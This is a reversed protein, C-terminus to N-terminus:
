IRIGGLWNAATTWRRRCAKMPSGDGPSRIVGPFFASTRPIGRDDFGVRAAM